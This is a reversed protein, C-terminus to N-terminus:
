IVGLTALIIILLCAFGSCIKIRKKFNTRDCAILAFIYYIIVSFDSIETYVTFYSVNLEILASNIFYAVYYPIKWIFGLFPMIACLISSYFVLSYLISVIPVLLINLFTVILSSYGWMKFLIPTMIMAVAFSVSLSSALFDLLSNFREEFFRTYMAIGLVATYSLILGYSFLTEPFITLVIILSLFLSNLSDYKRGANKVFNLVACMIVARLASVPFGCVGAYFITCSTTILTSKFGKVKLLSLVSAIMSSFFVVHLGSVAFIHSVGSLRYNSLSDYSVYSTDGLFLAVMIGGEDGSVNSLINNKLYNATIYFVNKPRSIRYVTEANVKLSTKSSYSEVTFDNFTCQGTVSLVDGTVFDEDYSFFLVDGYIDEGDIEANTLLVRKLGSDYTYVKSATGVVTCEKENYVANGNYLEIKYQTYFFGALFFLALVILEIKLGKMPKIFFSAIIAITLIAFVVYSWYPAQTYFVCLVMGLAFLSACFVIPRDNALKRM